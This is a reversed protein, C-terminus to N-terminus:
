GVGRLVCRLEGQVPLDVGVQWDAREGAPVTVRTRGWAVVTAQDTTFFVSIVFTQDRAKVAAATGSAAWGGDTAACGTMEVAARKAPRNPVEAPIRVGRPKTTREAPPDTAHASAEARRPEGGEGADDASCAALALALPLAAALLRARGRM